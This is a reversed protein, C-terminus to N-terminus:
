TLTVKVLKSCCYKKGLKQIFNLKKNLGLLSPITCENRNEILCNKELYINWIQLFFKLFISRKHTAQAINKEKIDEFVNLM